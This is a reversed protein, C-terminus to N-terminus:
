MGNKPTVPYLALTRDLEVQILYWRPRLTSVPTFKIFFLKHKSEQIQLHTLGDPAFSSKRLLANPFTQQM